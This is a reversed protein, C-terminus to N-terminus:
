QYQMEKNKQIFFTNAMARTDEENFRLEKGHNAAAYQEAGVLLDISVQLCKQMLAMAGVNYPEATVSPQPPAATQRTQPQVPALLRPGSGNVHQAPPLAPIALHADSVPRATFIPAEGHRGNTRMVQVEEGPQVGCRTIAQQGDVPLYLLCARGQCQVQFMYEVGDGYNSRCERGRITELTVVVPVGSQLKLKERQIM